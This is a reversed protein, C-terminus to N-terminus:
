WNYSNLLKALEQQENYLGEDEEVFKKEESALWQNARMRSAIAGIRSIRLNMIYIIREAQDKHERYLNPSNKINEWSPLIEKLRALNNEWGEIDSVNYNPPV